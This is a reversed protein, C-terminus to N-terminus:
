FTELFDEFAQKTCFIIVYIIIQFICYDVCALYTMLIIVQVAHLFRDDKILNAGHLLVTITDSYITDWIVLLINLEIEKM